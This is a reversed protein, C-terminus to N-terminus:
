LLERAALARPLDERLRDELATFAGLAREGREALWRAFGLSVELLAAAVEPEPEEQTPYYSFLFELLDRPSVQSGEEVGAHDLLYERLAALALRAPRGEEGPERRRERLGFEDLATELKM